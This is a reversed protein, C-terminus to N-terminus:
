PTISQCAFTVTRNLVQTGNAKWQHSFTSTCSPHYSTGNPNCFNTCLLFEDGWKGGGSTPGNVATPPGGLDCGDTITSFSETMAIGNITIPKAPTGNDLLQYYITRTVGTYANSGNDYKCQYAVNGTDTIVSFGGPVQVTVTGNAQWEFYPCVTEDQQFCQTEGGQPASVSPSYIVTAGGQVGTVLGSTNVTAISTNNSTWSGSTLPETSGNDLTMVATAQVTSGKLVSYNPLSIGRLGGCDICIPYCTANRVNYTSASTVVTMRDLEGKPGILTASGSRINDPILNGDADPVRSKVLTMMDLNYTQRPGLHLPIRYKGGHYYLTLTADQEQSAYNWISIMTSTDDEISWLCFIKGTTPAEASPMVQFVYNLSQDVSGADFLLDNYRGTYSVSLHGYGDPLPSKASFYRSMDLKLVADPTLTITDLSRTVPNGDAGNSTLSLSATIPHDSVNHLVAYPMFVTDTPFLMTPDAKGLMLGPAHLTVQHVAEEPHAVQEAMHPTFSFGSASDEISASAVIAHSAGSYLITVGGANGANVSGSLLDDLRMLVSSHSAISLQKQAIPNGAGDSFQLKVQKTTLSTNGLAIVDDSTQTPRWWTGRIVQPTISEPTQHVISKRGIPGSAGSLSAIEDLNQISAMVAPWSWQYSIGVMGYQSVHASLAPPLNQLAIKINVSVVGAPELHMVPLDFETGDAFFIEPTVDLFQTILINKLHLISDYDGDTRWFGGEVGQPTTPPLLPLPKAKQTPQAHAAFPVLCSLALLLQAARRSM